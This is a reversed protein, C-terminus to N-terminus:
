GVQNLSRCIRYCMGVPSFSKYAAKDPKEMWDPYEYVQLSSSTLTNHMKFGTAHAIFVKLELLVKCSFVAVRVKRMTCPMKAM